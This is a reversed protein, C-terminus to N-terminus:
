DAHAITCCSGAPKDRRVPNIERGWHRFGRRGANCFRVADNLEFGRSPRRDEQWRRSGTSDHGRTPLLGPPAVSKARM